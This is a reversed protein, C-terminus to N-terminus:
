RMPQACFQRSRNPIQLCCESQNLKLSKEPYWIVNLSRCFDTSQWFSPIICQDQYGCYLIHGGKILSDM